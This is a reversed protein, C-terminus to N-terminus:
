SEEVLRVATAGWAELVGLATDGGTLMLGGAAAACPRLLEGLRSMLRPDDAASRATSM